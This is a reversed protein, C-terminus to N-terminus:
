GHWASLDPSGGKKKAPKGSGANHRDSLLETTSPDHLHDTGSLVRQQIFVRNHEMLRETLTYRKGPNQPSTLIGTAYPDHVFSQRDTLYLPVPQEPLVESLLASIEDRRYPSECICILPGTANHEVLRPFMTQYASSKYYEGYLVISEVVQEPEDVGRDYEFWLPLLSSLSGDRTEARIGILAAPTFNLERGDELTLHAHLQVPAYWHEIAVHMQLESEQWDFTRRYLRERMAVVADMLRADHELNFELVQSLSTIYSTFELDGSPIGELREVIPIGQRNIFYYPGPDEYDLAGKNEPWHRYLYGRFVLRRLESEMKAKLETSDAGQDLYFMSYIQKQSLAKARYLARFLYFLYRPFTTLAEQLALSRYLKGLPSPQVWAHHTLHEEVEELTIDILNLQNQAVRWPDRFNLRSGYAHWVKEQDEAEAACLVCEMCEAYLFVKLFSEKTVVSM